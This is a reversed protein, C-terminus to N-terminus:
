GCEGCVWVCAAGHVGGSRVRLLLVGGLLLLMCVLLVLLLLQRLLVLVVLMMLLLVRVEGLLLLVDGLLDEGVDQTVVDGLEQAIDQFCVRGANSKHMDELQQVPGRM